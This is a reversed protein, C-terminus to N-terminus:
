RPAEDAVAQDEVGLTRERIALARRACSEAGEADGATEHLLALYHLSTAIKREDASREAVKLAHDAASIALGTRNQTAFILTWSTLLTWRGQRATFFIALRPLPIGQAALPAAIGLLLVAAVTVRRWRTGLAFHRIGFAM